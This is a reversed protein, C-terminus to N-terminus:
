YLVLSSANLTHGCNDTMTIGSPLNWVINVGAAYPWPTAYPEGARTLFCM